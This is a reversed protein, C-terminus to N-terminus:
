LHMVLYSSLLSFLLFDITHNSKRLSYFIWISLLNTYEYKKGLLICILDLSFFNIPTYQRFKGVMCM